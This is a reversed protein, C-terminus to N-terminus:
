FHAAPMTKKCLFIYLITFVMRKTTFYGIKTFFNQLNAFFVVVKHPSLFRITKGTCLLILKYFIM